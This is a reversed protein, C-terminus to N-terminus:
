RFSIRSKRYGRARGAAWGAGGGALVARKKFGIMGTRCRIRRIVCGKTSTKCSIRNARSGVSAMRPDKCSMRCAFRPMCSFSKRSIRCGKRSM